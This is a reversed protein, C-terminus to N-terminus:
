FNGQLRMFLMRGRGDHLRGDFATVVAIAPPEENTVNMVGLGITSNRLVGFDRFTYNYQIDATTFSPIDSDGIDDAIDDNGALRAGAQFFAVNGAPIDSELGDVYKVIMFVRHNNYNWNLTGNIRWEPLPRAVPNTFNYNGAGEITRAISGDAGAIEVTYEEMWAAQLGIRWQGFNSDFTYSSNIDMGSITASDANAFDPLVRLLLAESNRVVQDRNGVGQQVAQIWQAQCAAGSGPPANGVPAADTCGNSAAFAHLAANDATVLSQSNQRTIIDEYEYNFYDLDLAFGELFGDVPKWSLGIGWNEATEPQLEPNGLSISPRFTSEFSVDTLNGSTTLTGFSQQLSPVRFSTGWSARLSLSDLPQWLATLKPDTTNEDLEDFDEHRIAANLLFRDGFPVALEAFFANTTLEGDWPQAGFSFDLNDSSEASDVYTSGEDRRQQFGFALGVPQGGIEGLDGAVVWDIVSQSYRAGGNRKGLLWDYLEAPNVLELAPDGAALNGIDYLNGNRDFLSNGFPNFYYCNGADFDGGTAQYAANGEGPTGNVLDCNPGGRGSLALEMHTSLTDSRNVTGTSHQSATYSLDSTWQRDGINFDWDLGLVYRTDKRDARTFTDLPRFREDTFATGGILRTVNSYVIPEIGRRFADEQSGPNLSTQINGMDDLYNVQTPIPLAPANPNLSNLREFDQENSAFEFYTRIQDTFNWDGRTYMKRLEEQAQIVFFPGYDYICLNNGFATGLTGAQELAASDECNVDAQGFSSGDAARPLGPSAQGPDVGNAAWTPTEGFVPILRGPQGTGSITTGGYRGYNDAINIEDRNLVSAAVIISGRESQGGWLVEFNHTDGSNTEQSTTFQYNFDLGEFDDKSIFNVVGAIADSGYLASAGDKVIEVREIAINPLLGNINVAANGRENYWSPAQRKGNLLVLTSSQGLNRLNITNRGQAEEGQFNASRSISGSAWPMAQVIEAVDAAGLDEIEASSVVSLPSPSNAPDRKLYSGTVVVEEIIEDDEAAM